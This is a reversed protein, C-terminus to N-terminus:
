KEARRLTATFSLVGPTITRPPYFGAEKVLNALESTLSADSGSYSLVVVGSVFRRCIIDGKTLKGPRSALRNNILDVATALEDSAEAPLRLTAM